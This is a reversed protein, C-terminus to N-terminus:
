RLRYITVYDTVFSSSSPSGFLLLLTIAPQILQNRDMYIPMDAIIHAVALYEEKMFHVYALGSLAVCGHGSAIIYM